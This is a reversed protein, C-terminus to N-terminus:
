LDLPAGRQRTSIHVTESGDPEGKAGTARVLKFSYDPRSFNEPKGRVVERGAKLKRAFEYLFFRQSRLGSLRPPTNEVEFNPDALWAEAVIHDLQDHRLNAVVPVRELRTETATIALTAEDITCYLSVAPNA